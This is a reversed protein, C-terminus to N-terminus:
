QSHTTRDIVVSCCGEFHGHIKVSASMSLNGAATGHGDIEFRDNPLKRSIGNMRGEGNTFDVTRGNTLVLQHATLDAANEALVQSVVRARFRQAGRLAQSSEMLMLELLGFYLLAIVLVSVLVYGRQTETKEDRFCSEILWCNGKRTM